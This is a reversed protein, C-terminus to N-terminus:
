QGALVRTLEQLVVVGDKDADYPALQGYDSEIFELGSIKGDGNRDIKKFQEPGILVEEASLYNDENRDPAAFADIKRNAFEVETVKKDGDIDLISFARRANEVRVDEAALTGGAACLMLLAAVAIRKGIADNAAAATSRVRPSSRGPGNM